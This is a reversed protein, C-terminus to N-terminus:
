AIDNPGARAIGAVRECCPDSSALYDAGCRIAEFALISDNTLLGDRQRYERSKELVASHPALVEIGM